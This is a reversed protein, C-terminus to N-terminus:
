RKEGGRRVSDWECLAYSILQDTRRDTSPSFLDIFPLKSKKGDVKMGRIVNSRNSFGARSRLSVLPLEAVTQLCGFRVAKTEVSTVYSRYHCFKFYRLVVPVVHM